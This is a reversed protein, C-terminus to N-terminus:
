LCVRDKKPVRRPNSGIVDLKLVANAWSKHTRVFDAFPGALLDAKSKANSIIWAKCAIYDEHEKQQAAPIIVSHKLVNKAWRLRKNAIFSSYPGTALDAPTKAHAEIWEQVWM